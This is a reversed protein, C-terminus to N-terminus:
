SQWKGTEENREYGRSRMFFDTWFSARVPLLINEWFIKRALIAPDYRLMEMSDIYFAVYKCGGMGLAGGRREVRLRVLDAMFTEAPMSESRTIVAGFHFHLADSADYEYFCRTLGIYGNHLDKNTQFM